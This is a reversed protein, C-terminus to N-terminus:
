WHELAPVSVAEEACEEEEEEEDAEDTSRLLIPNKAQYKEPLYGLALGAVWSRLWAWDLAGM